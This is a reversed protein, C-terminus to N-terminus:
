LYPGMAFGRIFRSGNRQEARCVGKPQGGWDTTDLLTLVEQCPLAAAAAAMGM